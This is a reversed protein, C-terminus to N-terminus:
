ASKAGRFHLKESNQPIEDGDTVVIPEKDDDFAIRIRTSDGAKIFTPIATVPTVGMPLLPAGLLANLLTSKGRKFQGLAAVRLLGEGLRAQLEDLKFVLPAQAESPHPISAKARALFASLSTM